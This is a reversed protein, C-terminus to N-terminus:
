DNIGVELSHEALVKRILGCALYCDLDFFERDKRIRYPELKRFTLQEALSPDSVKWCSRVSLPELVGTASNIEVLRQEVTRETMGIKLINRQRRTSLIFLWGEGVNQVMETEGRFHQLCILTGLARLARRAADFDVQKEAIGYTRMESLTQSIRKARADSTYGLRRRLTFWQRQDQKFCQSFLGKVESISRSKTEPLPLTLGDTIMNSVMVTAPTWRAEMRLTIPAMGFGWKHQVKPLKVEAM